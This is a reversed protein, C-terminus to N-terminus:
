NSNSKPLKVSVAGEPSIIVKGGQAEIREIIRKRTREDGTNLSNVLVMAWAGEQATTIDPDDALFEATKRSITAINQSEPDSFESAWEAAKAFSREAKKTDGLFLLEDTGKYRWVYYAGPQEPTISKLGKAMLAIAKEPEGGFLSVSTSLFLYSKLFHPDRDVIIEFYNPSLEFGTRDRAVDDGFYQLFSLLTWDAILNSFGLSPIKQMLDLRAKEATVERKLEEISATKSRNIIKNLQPLQLGIIAFMSLLIVLSYGVISNFGSSSKTFM